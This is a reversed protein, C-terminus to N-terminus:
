PRPGLPRRRWTGDIAVGCEARPQRVGVLEILKARVGEPSLVFDVSGTEYAAKPMGYIASTREDQAITIGGIEKIHSIGAAGDVGMGTLVVGIVRDGSRKVLSNMAVDVSPCVFNVKEGPFLETFRNAIVQLHVESPALYVRGPVLEDRHDAVKVDMDSLSQLHDAVSRNIFEPMHHVLVIAANLRPLGSFVTELVRVGGTSSGIMILNRSNM